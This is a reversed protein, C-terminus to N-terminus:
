KSPHWPGSSSSYCGRPSIFAPRISKPCAEHLSNWSPTFDQFHISPLNGNLFFFFFLYIWCIRWTLCRSWPSSLKKLFTPTGAVLERIYDVLILLPVSNWSNCFESSKAYWIKVFQFRWILAKWRILTLAMDLNCRGSFKIIIPARSPIYDILKYHRKAFLCFEIIFFGNSWQRHIAYVTCLFQSYIRWEFTICGIVFTNIVIIAEVNNVFSSVEKSIRFNLVSNDYCSTNTNAKRDRLTWRYNSEGASIKLRQWKLNKTSVKWDM